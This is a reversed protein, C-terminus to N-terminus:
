RPPTPWSTRASAGRATPSAVSALPLEARGTYRPGKPSLVSEVVEIRDVRTRLDPVALAEVAAAITRREPVSVDPRVRALTLHPAFPRDDFTRGRQRLEGTVRAALAALPERGDGIGLWVVRPRGTPPFRGAGSFALEFPAQGAVAAGAAEVIRDLDPDATSGLFALTVHMREPRVPRVAPLAAPLLAAARATLETPLPVAIFLRM